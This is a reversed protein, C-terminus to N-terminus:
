IDLNNQPTVISRVEETSERASAKVELSEEGLHTVGANFGRSIVSTQKESFIPHPSGVDNNIPFTPSDVEKAPNLKLSEEAENIRQEVTRVMKKINNQLVIDNRLVDMVHVAKIEFLDNAEQGMAANAYAGRIGLKSMHFRAFEDTKLTASEEVLTIHRQDQNNKGLKLRKDGAHFIEHLLIREM